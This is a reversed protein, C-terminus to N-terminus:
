NVYDSHHILALVNVPIMRISLLKFVKIKLRIVLECHIDFIIHFLM